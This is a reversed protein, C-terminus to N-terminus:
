PANAQGHIRKVIFSNGTSLNQYEFTDQTLSTIKYIDYLTADTTDAGIFGGSEVFGRTATFYFGASTGWIGVESHKSVAGSKDIFIFDVKYAGDNNRQIIWTRNGGNKIPVDGKWSGILMERQAVTQASESEKFRTVSSVGTCSAVAICMLVLTLFRTRIM